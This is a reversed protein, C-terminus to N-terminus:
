RNSVHLLIFSVYDRAGVGDSSRPGIELGAGHSARWRGAIELESRGECSFVAM